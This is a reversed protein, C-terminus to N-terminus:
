TGHGPRATLKASALVTVRPAMASWPTRRRLRRETLGEDDDTEAHEALHGRLEQPGVTAADIPM